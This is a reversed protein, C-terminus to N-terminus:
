YGSKVKSAWLLRSQKMLLKLGIIRVSIMIIRPRTQLVRELLGSVGMSVSAMDKAKKNTLKQWAVAVTTEPADAKNGICAKTSDIPHGTRTFKMPCSYCYGDIPDWFQKPKSSTAKPCDTNLVGTAKSHRVAKLHTMSGPNFIGALANGFGISNNERKERMKEKEAATIQKKKIKKKLKAIDVSVMKLKQKARNDACTNLTVKNSKLDICRGLDSKYQGKEDFLWRQSDTVDFETRCTKLKLGEGDEDNDFDLCYKQENDTIQGETNLYWVQEMKKGCSKMTVEQNNGASELCAGLPGPRKLRVPGFEQKAIEAPKEINDGFEWFQNGKDRCEWIELNKISNRFNLCKGYQKNVIRYASDVYWQQEVLKEHDTPYCSQIRVNSGNKGTLEAGQEGPVPDLGLCMPEAKGAELSLQQLPRLRKLSDMYWSQFRSDEDYCEQMVVNKGVSLDKDEAGFCLKRRGKIKVQGRPESKGIKRNVERKECGKDSGVSALTRSYGDPCSYFKGKGVDLFSGEPRGAKVLSAPKEDTVANNGIGMCGQESDIKTATRVTNDPCSYCYGNDFHWFQGAPCSLGDAKNHKVPKKFDSIKSLDVRYCANDKDSDVAVLGRSYGEPCSWCEGQNRDDYFSGEPCSWPYNKDGEHTPKKTDVIVQKCANDSDVASWTRKYGSPCSWCSSLGVDFFAGEPCNFEAKLPDITVSAISLYAKEIDEAFEGFNLGNLTLDIDVGTIKSTQGQNNKLILNGAVRVGINGDFHDYGPLIAGPTAFFIDVEQFSIADLPVPSLMQIKQSPPVWRVEDFGGVIEDFVAQQVSGELMQARLGQQAPGTLLGKLFLDFIDVVNPLSLQNNKFAFGLKKPVPIGLAPTTNLAIIFGASLDVDNTKTQGSEMRAQLEKLRAKIEGKNFVKTFDKAAVPTAGASTLQFSLTSGIGVELGGSFDTGILIATEKLIIDEFGLPDHWDGKTYGAFRVGVGAADINLYFDGGMAVIDPGEETGAVRPLLMEVDARIGTKFTPGAADVSIFFQGGANNVQVVQKMENDKGNSTKKPLEITPIDLYFAVKLKGSQFGGLSGGMVIPGSTEIGLDAVANKLNEDKSVDIAGIISIGEGYLPVKGKGSVIGNFMTQIPTPLDSLNLGGDREDDGAATSFVLMANPMEFSELPKSFTDLAGSKPLSDVVKKVSFDTVRSMVYFDKGRKMVALQGKIDPKTWTLGSYLYFDLGEKNGATESIGIGLSNIAIENVVPIDKLLKIDALNLGSAEADGDFQMFVEKVRAKSSSSNTEETVTLGLAGTLEGLDTSDVTVGFVIKLDTTKKKQPIRHEGIVTDGRKTTPSAAQWGETKTTKERHGGIQIGGNREAGDSISGTQWTTEEGEPTPPKNINIKTSGKLSLKKLKFGDFLDLNMNEVSGIAKLDYTSDGPVSQDKAFAIKRKTVYDQNNIWITVDQAAFLDLKKSAKDYGIGLSTKDTKMFFTRKAETADMLSFPAPIVSPFMIQLAVPPLPKEDKRKDDNAIEKQQAEKRNKHAEADATQQETKDAELKGDDMLKGLLDYGVSGSIYLFGEDVKGGLLLAQEVVKLAGAEPLKIKSFFNVGTALKVVKTANNAAKKVQYPKLINGM